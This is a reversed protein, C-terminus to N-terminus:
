TRLILEYIIVGAKRIVKGLNKSEVSLKKLATHVVMINSLIVLFLKSDHSIRFAASLFKMTLCAIFIVLITCGVKICLSYHVRGNCLSFPAGQKRVALITCKM